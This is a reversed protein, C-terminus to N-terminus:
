NMVALIPTLKFTSIAKARSVGTYKVIEDVSVLGLLVSVRLRDVPSLWTDNLQGFLQATALSFTLPKPIRVGPRLVARLVSRLAEPAPTPSSSYGPANTYLTSVLTWFDRKSRASGPWVGKGNAAVLGSAPSGPARSNVFAAVYDNAQRVLETGSAVLEPHRSLVQMNIVATTAGNVVEEAGNKPADHHLTEHAVTGILLGFHEREYRRNFLITSGSAQAIATSISVGGFRMITVDTSDLFLRQTSEGVTGALAAFAARLSPGAIKAKVDAQDFLYLARAREPGAPMFAALQTRVQDETQLPGRAPEMPTGEPYVGASGGDFKSTFLNVDCPKRQPLALLFKALQIPSAGPAPRKLSAALPKPMACVAARESHAPVGAAIALAVVVVVVAVATLRLM